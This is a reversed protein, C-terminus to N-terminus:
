PHHQTAHLLSASTLKYRWKCGTIQRPRFAHYFLPKSLLSAKPERIALGAWFADRLNRWANKESRYEQPGSNEASDHTHYGQPM